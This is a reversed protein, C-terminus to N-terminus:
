VTERTYAYFRKFWSYEMCCLRSCEHGLADEALFAAGCEVFSDLECRWFLYNLAEVSLARFAAFFQGEVWGVDVDFGYFLLGVGLGNPVLPKSFSRFLL